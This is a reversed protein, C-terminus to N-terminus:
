TGPVLRLCAALNGTADFTLGSNQTAHVVVDGPSTTSDDGTTITPTGGAITITYYAANATPWTRLFPGGVNTASSNGLLETQWNASTYGQWRTPNEAQLAAVAVGVTRADSVCAAVLDGLGFTHSAM